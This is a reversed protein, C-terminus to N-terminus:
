GATCDDTAVVDVSRNEIGLPIVRERMAELGGLRAVREIIEARLRDKDDVDMVSVPRDPDGILKTVSLRPHRYPAMDGAVDVADKYYAVKQEVSKATRALRLFVAMAEAMVDLPAAINGDAALAIARRAEVLSAKARTHRTKRHIEGRRRGPM